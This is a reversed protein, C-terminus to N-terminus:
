RICISNVCLCLNIGLPSLCLGANVTCDSAVNCSNSGGTTPPGCVSNNCESGATTCDADVSCADGDNGGGGGGSVICVSNVCLCLNIGLPSLCLAANATCDSAANCSNTGGDNPDPGCTGGGLCISGAATCDSDDTCADGDNGGGVPAAVCLSNVCLCLNIGLPSLCLAANATCDAATNCSDTGTNDPDPGCTNDDLCISGTATCDSDITCADGDNGGGGPGAVCLSNVCLCLNIGLPSLCLGANATCDAATNCDTGTNDPDPGCTNDDLCISGTATCDSDITCADGDNSGGGPGAVCLSNVCLCLNIGLPSLCLGANATCDAATNCDTGTNDPDPGCVGSDLCISGLSTCQTDDTCLDGDNGGGVPNAVCVANLCVCINIGLPSLCLGVNATCDAATNCDTGTNDPDPGCVGSDLCISGLSTCQTDDTCPDGDNGGGPGDVVCVADVCVCLNLLGDVCLGLDVLCDDDTTCPTTATETPVVATTTADGDPAAICVGDVCLCINLLGDLCLDANVACDDASSCATATETPTVGTTTADGDTGDLTTVEANATTDVADTLTVTATPEGDPGDLTTLEPGDDTLTITATPDGDPGDLTTLEPGETDTSTPRGQADGTIPQQVCIGDVCRCINEGNFLCANNDALCDEDTTCTTTGTPPAPFDDTTAPGIDETSTPDGPTLDPDVLCLQDRCICVNGGAVVCLEVYLNCDSDVSCTLGTQTPNVPFTITNSGQTIVGFTSTRDNDEPQGSIGTTSGSSGDTAGDTDTAGPNPIVTVSGSVTVTLSPEDDPDNGGDRTPQADPGDGDGGGPRGGNGQPNGDIGPRGPVCDGALCRQGSPCVVGFCSALDPNSTCTEALCIEDSACVEGGCNAPDGLEVCADDICAYNLPCNSGGCNIPSDVPVCRDNICAFGPPCELTQRRSLGSSPGCSLPDSVTLCEGAVCIENSSCDPDCAPTPSGNGDSGPGPRGPGFNSAGGKDGSGSGPRSGPGYGSGPRGSGTGPYYGNGDSYQPKGSGDVYYGGENYYGGESSGGGNPKGGPRGSSGGNEYSEGSTGHGGSGGKGSSGGKGHSGQNSSKGGYCSPCNPRRGSSGSSDGTCITVSTDAERFLNTTCIGSICIEDAGCGKKSKGCKSGDTSISIPLCEHEYCFFGPDCPGHSSGCSDTQEKEETFSLFQCSGSVCLQGATCSKASEGCKYIDTSLSIQQCQGHHCSSGLPCPTKKDCTQPYTGLIFPICSDDLCWTGADCSVKKPGCSKSEPDIDLTQCQGNICVAGAGCDKHDKGCIRSNAAIEIAVCKGDNCWQGPECTIDCKNNGFDLPYCEGAVCIEGAECSNGYAGCNKPDLGITTSTCTGWTCLQSLPCYVHKNSRAVHNYSQFPYASVTIATLAIATLARWSMTHAM